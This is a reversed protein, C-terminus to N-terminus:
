SICLAWFYPWNKSLRFSSSSKAPPFKKKSYCKSVPLNSYQQTMENSFQKAFKGEINCFCESYILITYTREWFRDRLWISACDTSPVSNGASTDLFCRSMQCRRTVLRRERKDVTVLCNGPGCYLILPRNAFYWSNQNCYNLQRVLSLRCSNQM